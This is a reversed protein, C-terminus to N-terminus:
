NPSNRSAERATPRTGRGAMPSKKIGKGSPERGRMRIEEGSLAGGEEKPLLNSDERRVEGQITIDNISLM